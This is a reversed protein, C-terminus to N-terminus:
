FGKTLGFKLGIAYPKEILAVDRRYTSNVQYRVQPGVQLNYSGMKFNMYTEFGLNLNFMSISSPESIYNKLDSSIIHAKGGFYYTPQITAGAFWEVNNRSSIKYGFGVPLSVQYTRNHLTLPRSTTSYFSNTTTSTRAAAYSYGTAPDNLLITTVIPHNSQDASINYNTYNFQAGAKIHLKKAVAYNLSIGAEFGFGPKQSISNNIDATAFPAQSGKAKTTLKRYNVAPTVYFQYGLRGKWKKAAPKNEFAYDEICAKEDNKINSNSENTKAEANIKSDATTKYLDTKTTNVVHNSTQIDTTLLLDQDSANDRNFTNSDSLKSSGPNNKKNLSAVDAFIKNYRIYNNITQIIDENNHSEPNSKVVPTSTSISNVYVPRNSKVVTYAYYDTENTIVDAFANNYQQRPKQGGIKTDSFNQTKSRAKISPVSEEIDIKTIASTNNIQRTISNEGTNLYGILILSSILFLSIVVSPWRRSPHLNNYISYWVRKSPYMSFQDAKEKLLQEFDDTYFENEM